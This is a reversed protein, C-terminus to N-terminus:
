LVDDATVAVPEAEVLESPDLGVRGAPDGCIAATPASPAEAALVQPAVVAGPQMLNQVTVNLSALMAPNWRGNGSDVGASEKLSKHVGVVGIEKLAGTINRLAFSITNITNARTNEAKAVKGATTALDHLQHIMEMALNSVAHTLTSDAQAARMLAVAADGNRLQKDLYAARLTAWGEDGSARTMRDTSCGFEAALDAIMPREPREIYAQRAGVWDVSAVKARQGHGGKAYM